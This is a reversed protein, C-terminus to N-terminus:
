ADKGGSGPFPGLVRRLKVAGSYMRWASRLNTSSRGGRRKFGPVALEVIPLGLRSAKVMLELDLLDDRSSLLLREYTERGLIKPTGNVDRAGFGYLLRGELNYLWSGVERLVVGRQERRVKAVCPAHAQFLELLRPIDHPDTRASNTYCLFDGKAVALGELVSRGWGGLPIEVVVVRPDAAAVERVVAATRDVCANPVVVLEYRLGTTDLPGAYARLVPGIHDEQNRCPLIVSLDIRPGSM